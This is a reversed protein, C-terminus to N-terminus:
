VEKEKEKPPRGVRGKWQGCWDDRRKRVVVPNCHCGGMTSSQHEPVWLACDSCTKM